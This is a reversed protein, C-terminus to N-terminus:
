DDEKLYNILERKASQKLTSELIDKVESFSAEIYTQRNVDCYPCNSFCGERRGGLCISCSAKIYLKADSEDGEM